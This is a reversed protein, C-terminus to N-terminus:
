SAQGPPCAPLPEWTIQGDRPRAAWGHGTRQYGASLTPVGLVTVAREVRAATADGSRICAEAALRASTDNDTVGRGARHPGAADWLWVIM